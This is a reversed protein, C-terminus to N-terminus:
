RIADTGSFGYTLHIGFTGAPVGVAQWLKKMSQKNYLRATNGNRSFRDANRDFPSRATVCIRYQYEEDM